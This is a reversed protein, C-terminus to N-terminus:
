VFLLVLPIVIGALLLATITLGGRRYKYAMAIGTLTSTVLAACVLLFFIKLPLPNHKIQSNAPLSPSAHHGAADGAAPRGPPPLRREPVTAVQKKHIQGLVVAWHPPTYTSDRSSEHLGFTQLAGTFAFFLLAPAFFVGLYLHLLRLTGISSSSSRM